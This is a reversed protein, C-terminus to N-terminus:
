SLRVSIVKSGLEKKTLLWCTIRFFSALSYRGRKLFRKCEEETFAIHVMISLGGGFLAEEGIVIQGSDEAAVALVSPFLLGAGEGVEIRRSAFAQLSGSFGKKIEIVPAKLVAGFLTAKPGVVIKEGAAIKSFPPLSDSLVVAKPVDQEETFLMTDRFLQPIRAPLMDSKRILSDELQPLEGGTRLFETRLFQGGPLYLPEQADIFGGLGLIGGKDQVFLGNEGDDCSSLLRYQILSDRGKFLVISDKRLVGWSTTYRRMRIGTKERYTAFVEATDRGESLYRDLDKLYRLMQTRVLARDQLTTSYSRSLLASYSFLAVVLVLFLAFYLVHGSYKNGLWM